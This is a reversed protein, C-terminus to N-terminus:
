VMCFKIFFNTNGGSQYFIFAAHLKGFIRFSIVKTASSIPILFNNKFEFTDSIVNYTLVRSAALNNYPLRFEESLVIYSDIADSSVDFSQADHVAIKDRHLAFSESTENWKFLQIHTYFLVAIYHSNGIKAYKISKSDDIALKDM